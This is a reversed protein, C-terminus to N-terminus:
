LEGIAEFKIDVGGWLPSPSPLKVESERGHEPSALGSSLVDGLWERTGPRVLEHAIDHARMFDIGAIEEMEQFTDLLREKEENGIHTVPCIALAKQGAYGTGVPWSNLVWGGIYKATLRLTSPRSVGLEEYVARSLTHATSEVQIENRVGRSLQATEALPGLAGQPTKDSHKHRLILFRQEGDLIAALIGVRTWGAAKIVRLDDANFKPFMATASAPQASRPLPMGKNPPKLSM